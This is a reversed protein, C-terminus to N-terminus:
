FRWESNTMGGKIKNKEDFGISEVELIYIYEITQVRSGNSNGKDEDDGSPGFDHSGLLCRQIFDREEELELCKAGFFNMNRFYIVYVASEM